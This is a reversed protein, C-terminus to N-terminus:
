RTHEKVIRMAANKLEVSVKPQKPAFWALLLLCAIAALVLNRMM